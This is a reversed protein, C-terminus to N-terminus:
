TASLKIRMLTQLSEYYSKAFEIGTSNRRRGLEDIFKDMDSLEGVLESIPLCSIQRTRDYIWQQGTSTLHTLHERFM